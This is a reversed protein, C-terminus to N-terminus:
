FNNEPKSTSVSLVPNLLLHQAPSLHVSAYSCHQQAAREAADSRLASYNTASDLYKM